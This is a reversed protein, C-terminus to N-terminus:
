PAPAVAVSIVATIPSGGADTADQIEIVFDGPVPPDNSVGNFTCTALDLPAAFSDLSIVGLVLEELEVTCTGKSGTVCDADSACVKTNDLSCVKDKDNPAFLSQPVKNTCTVAGGSNAFGGPAGSYDTGWQLAGVNATASDLHFTVLFNQPEEGGLTTTTTGPELTTTTPGATTTTTTPGAECEISVINVDPLPVIPNLDPDSAETVTITFDSEVPTINAAFTCQSINIPGTFGAIAIFGSDVVEPKQAFEPCAPADCDNFAAIAAGGLLSACQVQGLSGAMEGPANSYDTDFQLSGLTV